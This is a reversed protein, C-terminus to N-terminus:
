EEIEGFEPSLGFFEQQDSEPALARLTELNHMGTVALGESAQFERIADITDRGVVGNISGIEYGQQSLLQQMEQIQESSLQQMALPDQTRMQEQTQMTEQIQMGSKLADSQSSESQEHGAALALSFVLTSSLFVLALILSGRKM